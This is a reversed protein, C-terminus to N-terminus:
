LGVALYLLMFLLLSLVYNHHTRFVWCKVREVWWFVAGKWYFRIGRLTMLSIKFWLWCASCNSSLGFPSRDGNGMSLLGTSSLYCWHMRGLLLLGEGCNSSWKWPSQVACQRGRVGSWQSKAWDAIVWKVGVEPVRPIGPICWQCGQLIGDGHWQQYLRFVVGLWCLGNHYWSSCLAWFQYLGALLEFKQGERELPQLSILPELLPDQVLCHWTLVM